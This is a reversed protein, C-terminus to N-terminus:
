EDEFVVKRQPREHKTDDKKEPVANRLLSMQKNTTAPTVIKLSDVRDHGNLRIM